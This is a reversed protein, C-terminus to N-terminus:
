LAESGKSTTKYQNRGAEAVNDRRKFLTATFESGASRHNADHRVQADTRWLEIVGVTSERETAIGGEVHPHIRIVTCRCCVQESADGHFIERLKETLVALCLVSTTKGLGQELTPWLRRSLENTKYIASDWLAVTTTTM